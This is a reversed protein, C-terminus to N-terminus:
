RLPQARGPVKPAGFETRPSKDPSISASGAFAQSTSFPLLHLHTIRSSLESCLHKVKATRPGTLNLRTTQQLCLALNTEVDREPENSATM